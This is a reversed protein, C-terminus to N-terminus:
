GFLHTYTRVYAHTHTRTAVLESRTYLITGSPMKFAPIAIFTCCSTVRLGETASNNYSRLPDVSELFYTTACLRTLNSVPDYGIHKWRNADYIKFDGGKWVKGPRFLALEARLREGCAIVPGVWWNYVHALCLLVLLVVLVATSLLM